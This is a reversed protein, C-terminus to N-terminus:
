LYQEMKEPMPPQLASHSALRIEVRMRWKQKQRSGQSVNEWDKIIFFKLCVSFLYMFCSSINAMNAKDRRHMHTQIYMSFVNRRSDSSPLNYIYCKIGLHKLIHKRLICNELSYSCYNGLIWQFLPGWGWPRPSTRTRPRNPVRGCLLLHATPLGSFSRRSSAGWREGDSANSGSDEGGVDTSFNDEVFGTGPALFTPSWQELIVRKTNFNGLQENEQM